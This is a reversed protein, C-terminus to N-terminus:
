IWSKTWFYADRWTSSSRMPTWRSSSQSTPFTQLGSCMWRWEQPLTKQWNVSLRPGRRSSPWSASSTPKRMNGQNHCRSMTPHCACMLTQSHQLAWQKISVKTERGDSSPCSSGDQNPRASGRNEVCAYPQLDEGQNRTEGNPGASDEGTEGAGSRTSAAEKTEEEGATWLLGVTWLTLPTLLPSLTDCVPDPISLTVTMSTSNYLSHGAAKCMPVFHAADSVPHPLHSTDSVPHPLHSTDSVPHPLRSSTVPTLWFELFAFLWM